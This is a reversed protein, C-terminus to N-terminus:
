VEGAKIRLRVNEAEFNDCETIKSQLEERLAAIEARLQRIEEKMKRELVDKMQTVEHVEDRLEENASRYQNILETVGLEITKTTTASEDAAKARRDAIKAQALAFVGALVAIILPAAVTWNM